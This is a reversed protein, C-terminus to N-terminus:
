LEDKKASSETCLQVVFDSACSIIFETIAKLTEPFYPLWSALPTWRVSWEMESEHENVARFLIEGLHDQVPWTFLSPNLVKYTMRVSNEATEDKGIISEQLGMPPIRMLVFGVGTESDGSDLIFPPPTFWLGLNQKWAQLACQYGQEPTTHSLRRHIVITESFARVTPVVVVLTFCLAVLQMSRFRFSEHTQPM